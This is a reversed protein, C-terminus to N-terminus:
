IAASFNLTKTRAKVIFKPRFMMRIRVSAKEGYTAPSLVIRRTTVEFPVLDALEIQGSSLSGPANSGFVQLSFNATIRSPVLVEFSENWEVTLAVAKTQSKYVESKNLSFAVYLFSEGSHSDGVIDRGHVLEIHLVGMNNTFELEAEVPVYKAQIRITSTNKGDPGILTFQAPGVSAEKLFQKADVELEAMIGEKEGEDHENLRLWVHAFDLGKIFVEGVQDWHAQTSRAKETAFVPWYGDDLLVELRAKKAIQGDIINLVLIGSQQSLLEETTMQVGEQKHEESPTEDDLESEETDTAAMQGTQATRVTDASEVRKHNSVRHGKSNVTIDREEGDKLVKRILGEQTADETLISLEFSAIGLETDKRHDNHDLVALNLTETLSNIVLFKVEGWHPNYTSRRFKTRAMEARNNITLSVYPDPTGGGIKAGKLGRADFITVQLVGITPVYEFWGSYTAGAPRSYFMTGWMVSVLLVGLRSPKPNRLLWMYAELYLSIVISIEIDSETDLDSEGLLQVNLDLILERVAAEKAVRGHGFNLIGYKVVSIKGDPNQKDLAHKCREWSRNLLTIGQVRKGNKSNTVVFGATTTVLDRYVVLHRKSYVRLVSEQLSEAETWHEQKSHIVALEAKARLTDPNTAGLTEEYSRMVRRQLIEAAAWFKQKSYIVALGAMAGITHVHEPGLNQQHSGVVQRQLSEAQAWNDQKCHIRALEAMADLTDLHESGLTQKLSSVVHQQFTEAKAWQGQKSYIMALKGMSKVTESEAEGLMKTQLKVVQLCLKASEDWRNQQCYTSVLNLMSAVTDSHEETFKGQYANLIENQLAEAEVLRGRNSYVLALNAKGRLMNLFERESILEQQSHTSSQLRMIEQSSRQPQLQSHSTLGQLQVKEAEDLRGQKLYISALNTISRQTHPHDQGLSEKQINLARIQLEEAKDLRDLTVYTSALDIMSGLTYMHREGLARNMEQYVNIELDEVQQWRKLERYVKAFQRHYDRAPTQKNTLFRDLHMELSVMFDKSEPSDDFGISLSLLTAASELALEPSQEVKAKAWDQVLVHISYAGNMRDFDILSYSVVENIVGLFQLSDWEGAPDLFQRLHGGVHSFASTVTESPPLLSVRALSGRTNIAARKFIEETITNHHLFATLWLMHRSDQKLLSYCMEWTTYVTKTYDDVPVKLKNYEDLMRRRHSLFLERYNSLTLGPSHAIYAGAHVVALALHGFDEMLAVAAKVEAEPLHRCSLRAVKLLLALSEEPKMGPSMRCVSGTGRALFALDTLRTTILVGGYTGGPIYRRLDVGVSPEDVNDFVMLWPGLCSELWDITDQYTHGINKVGAFAKLASEITGRSTGDIYLVDTWKNRTQEVVKLALQTKGSGGLGYIVCVSREDGNELMCEIVQKAEDKRGTYVPTPAPCKRMRPGRRVQSRQQVQGDILEVELSNNQKKIAQVVDIMRRDTDIKLLYAKTHAMVGQLREWDGTKMDQTGQDVNFRFYIGSTAGFRIAMEEAVRESDTAMDKMAALDQTRFIQEPLSYDPISITRAHGAGISLICSVHRGPYVRKVETLVHAMPNSCGLDGSIFSQRLAGEGIEIDKFLNHHAMTTHLTDLITCNPGRNAGVPYSRFMTPLGANMNHKSMAFVITKCGEANGEEMMEGGKGFKDIIRELAERLKTGKYASPGSTRIMKKDAFVEQILKAYEEIASDLPMRLRGLMCASLGGTGSGAIVDFYDATNLKVGDSQLDELRNMVERLVVLSSLGRAGGGDICLINLGRPEDGSM